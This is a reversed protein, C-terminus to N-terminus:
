YYITTITPLLARSDCTERLFCTSCIQLSPRAKFNNNELLKELIKKAKKVDELHRMTTLEDVIVKVVRVDSPTSSSFLFFYFDVEQGM